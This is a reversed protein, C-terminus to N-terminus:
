LTIKYLKGDTRNTFFLLSENANLFLKTADYKSTIKNLDVIRSKEGTTTDIKWFTDATHFKEQDYDNPMIASAPIEGPLACYLAKNNAL